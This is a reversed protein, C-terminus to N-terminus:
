SIHLGPDLSPLTRQDVSDTSLTRDLFLGDVYLSARFLHVFFFKKVTIRNIVQIIRAGYVIMVNGKKNATMNPSAPCPMRIASNADASITNSFLSAVQLPPPSTLM